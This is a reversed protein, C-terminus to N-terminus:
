NLREHEGIKKKQHAGHMVHSRVRSKTEKAKTDNFNSFNLFRFGRDQPAKPAGEEFDDSVPRLSAGDSSEEMILSM